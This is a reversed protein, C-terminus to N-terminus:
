NYSCVAPAFPLRVLVFVFAIVFLVFLLREIQREYMRTFRGCASEQEGEQSNDLDLRVLSQGRGIFFKSEEEQAKAKDLLEKLQSM